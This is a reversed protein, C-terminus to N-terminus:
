SKRLQHLTTRDGAGELTFAAWFYPAAKRGFKRIVDRKAEALAQDAPMQEALHAYFRRMLVLSSFDEIPWLTSIVTRSGALLFARSLTAIGEEGGIPGIATDCASLVALDANLRLQVVESAQLFGDEGAAPDSLLVLSARDPQATNALAHVALHLIRYRDFPQKKFASETADPGLLLTNQAAPVAEAAAMLEDKSEPLNALGKADYGRIANVRRLKSSDYPVAGVGLLAGPELGARAQRRLLYYSSASGSYTVVKTEAVYRGAPDVLADFPLTHLQGDRVIVLKRYQAIERIPLLLTDYLSRAQVTAVDRAKVLKRYASVDREIQTSASLRVIRASNRTIVLCYSRTDGVVYELLLTSPPLSRQVTEINVRTGAKARLINVDPRVWRAQELVFLRDRIRQIDANSRAAMLKLRMRAARMSDQKAGAGTVSGAALLDTMVRGRVQEIVDYARSSDNFHDAILAFHRRYLESATTILAVKDLVGESRGVMSDVIAEARSYVRDAEAFKQQEVKLRALVNLRDVMTTFDGRSQESNAAQEAFYEAKALNKRRLYIETLIREAGALTDLYGGAKAIEVAQNLLTIARQDDKRLVAIQGLRAIITSELATGKRQRAHTLMKRALQEAADLKDTGILVNLKSQYTVQPYGIDPDSVAVKLSQEVYPLAQEYLRALSLGHALMALALMEGPKDGQAHAAFLAIGVDKRATEIDGDYYAAVGLQATARSEWQKDGLEKALNRVEEWDRRMAAHDSEGDFDGKVILCFMRLRRDTQLFPLRELDEELQVIAEPLVVHEMSSRMKGLRAYYANKTDGQAILLREAEAFDPGADAWNFANALRLARDLYDQASSPSQGPAICFLPAILLALSVRILYKM